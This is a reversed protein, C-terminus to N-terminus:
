RPDTASGRLLAYHDIAEGQFARLEHGVLLATDLTRWTSATSQPVRARLQQPILAERGIAYLCVLSTDYRLRTRM